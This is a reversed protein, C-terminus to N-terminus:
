AYKKRHRRTLNIYKEGDTKHEVLKKNLIVKKIWNVHQNVFAVHQAIMIGQIIRNIGTLVHVSLIGRSVSGTIIQILAYTKSQPLYM